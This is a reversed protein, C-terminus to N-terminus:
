RKLIMMGWMEMMLTTTTTTTCSHCAWGDIMVIVEDLMVHVM